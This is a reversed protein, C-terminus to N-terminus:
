RDLYAVVKDYAEDFSEKLNKKKSMAAQLAPPLKKQKATLENGSKEKKEKKQNTKCEAGEDSDCGKDAAKCKCKEDNEDEKKAWPPVWDKGKGKKESILQYANELSQTDKDLSNLLSSM